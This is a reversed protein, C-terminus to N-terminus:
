RALLKKLEEIIRPTPIPKGSPSVMEAFNDAMIEEPHIIYPTNKGIKDAYAPLERPNLLEPEGDKLAPFLKPPEGSLVMLRFTMYAFFEGGKARDYKDSTTYLIPVLRTMGREPLDLTIFTDLGPADPNTIRRVALSPPLKVPECPEFGVIKYLAQREQPRHRSYVHFLEHLLLRELADPKGELKNPPLIIANARTYAARGEELGTTKILLVVPPLSIKYAALRKAVSELLPTLKERDADTWALTQASAFALFQETSMESETKLKLMREIPSLARIYDDAQALLKTGEEVTAFRAVSDPLLRIPEAAIVFRATAPLISISLLILAKRLLLNDKALVPRVRTQDCM